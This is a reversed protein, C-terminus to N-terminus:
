CLALLDRYRIIDSGIEFIEHGKISKLLLREIFDVADELAIPACLSNLWLPTIMVPLRKALYYVILYSASCTALLISARVEGVPYYTRLIMLLIYNSISNDMSM